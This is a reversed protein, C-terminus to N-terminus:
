VLSHGDMKPINKVNLLKLTTPAIDMINPTKNNIEFNTFLVGPVHSRDILHDGKWKSTNEFIIEDDLGGTASKWAMRFGRSFGVVVEPSLHSYEGEYIENGKYINTFVRKSNHKINKLKTVIENKLNDQEERSM